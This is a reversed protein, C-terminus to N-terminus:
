QPADKLAADVVALEEDSGFACIHPHIRELAAELKAVRARVIDHAEQALRACRRAADLDAELEAVRARLALIETAAEVEYEDPSIRILLRLQEDTLRESM